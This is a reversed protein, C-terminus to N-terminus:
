DLSPWLDPDAVCLHHSSNLSKMCSVGCPQLWYYAHMHVAMEQIFLYVKVGLRSLLCISGFWGFLIYPDVDERGVCCLHLPFNSSCHLLSPDWVYLLLQVILGVSSYIGIAPCKNDRQFVQPEQWWADVQLLTVGPWKEQKRVHHHRNHHATCLQPHGLRSPHQTKSPWTCWM